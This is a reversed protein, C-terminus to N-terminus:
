NECIYGVTIGTIYAKSPPIILTFPRNKETNIQFYKCFIDFMFENPPLLFVM